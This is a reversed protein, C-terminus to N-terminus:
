KKGVVTKKKKAAEKDLKKKEEAAKKESAKKEEALKEIIFHDVCIRVLDQMDFQGAAMGQLLM